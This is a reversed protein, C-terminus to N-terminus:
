AGKKLRAVITAECVALDTAVGLALEVKKWVDAPALNGAKAQMFALFDAQDQTDLEAAENKLEVLDVKVSSLEQILPLFDAVLNALGKSSALYQEVAQAVDVLVGMDKKLEAVGYQGAM